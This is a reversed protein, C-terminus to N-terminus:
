GVPKFPNNQKRMSRAPSHCILDDHKPRAHVVSALMFLICFFFQVGKSTYYNDNGATKTSASNLQETQNKKYHDGPQGLRAICRIPSASHRTPLQAHWQDV